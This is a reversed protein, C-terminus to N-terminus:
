EGNKITGRGVYPESPIVYVSYEYPTPEVSTNFDFLRVSRGDPATWPPLPFQSTPSNIRVAGAAPFQYGDTQMVFRLM